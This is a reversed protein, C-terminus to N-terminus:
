LSSKIPLIKQNNGFIIIVEGDRLMKYPIESKKCFTVYKDVSSSEPHDSKYHMAVVYDILSLGELNFEDKYGSPVVFQDDIIEVGKLTPSIVVVGASFAGYVIQDGTVMDKIIRDFGSQEYARKLIFSNGGYVWVLGYKTMHRRLNEEKGFYSRLDLQEADLGYSNFLSIQKALSEVARKYDGGDVANMVIAVSKKDDVLKILEEEHDGFKYSSLYMKM